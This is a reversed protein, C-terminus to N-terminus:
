RHGPIDGNAHGGSTPLSGRAATFEAILRLCSAADRAVGCLPQDSLGAPLEGADTVVITKVAVSGEGAEVRGGVWM